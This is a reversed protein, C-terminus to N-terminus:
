YDSEQEQEILEIREIFEGFHHRTIAIIEGTITDFNYTKGHYVNKYNPIITALKKDLIVISVGDYEYYHKLSWSSDLVIMKTLINCEYERYEFYHGGNFLPVVLFTDDSEIYGKNLLTRGRSRGDPFWTLFEGDFLGNSITKQADRYKGYHDHIYRIWVGDPISDRYPICYHMLMTDSRMYNDLTDNLILFGHRQIGPGIARMPHLDVKFHERHLNYGKINPIQTGIYVLLVSDRGFPLTSVISDIQNHTFSGQSYYICKGTINWIGLEPHDQAHLQQMYVVAIIAIIVKTLIKM